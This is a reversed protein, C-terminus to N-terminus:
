LEYKKRKPMPRAKSKIQKSREQSQKINKPWHKLADKYYRTNKLAKLGKDYNFKKWSNGAHYIIGYSKNKILTDLGKNYDFDKWSIGAYYVNGYSKNKILADLGKNYDFDKWHIGAYYIYYNAKDAKILADFGKKFDFDKENMGKDYIQKATLNETAEALYIIREKFNM